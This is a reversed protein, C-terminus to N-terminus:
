VTYDVPFDPLNRKVLQYEVDGKSLQTLGLIQRVPNGQLETPANSLVKYMRWTGTQVLVDDVRMTPISITWAGIQVQEMRGYYTKANNEPTADYQVYCISPDFYGGEFGTGLCDPCHDQMVKELKFDWCTLCRQGYSKRRFLYTKIGGFRSLFWYERRQIELSRLTVWNRQHSHWTKPNSRLTVNGKSTLIAEIVYYGKTYKSYERTTTDTFFTGTLPTSNLKEFGSDEVQSFYVNFECSGFEVPVKWEVTIQKYWQPYVTVEFFNSRQTTTLPLQETLTLYGVRYSLNFSM